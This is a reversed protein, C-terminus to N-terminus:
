FVVHSLEYYSLKKGALFGGTPFDCRYKRCFWRQSHSKLLYARYFVDHSFSDEKLFQYCM